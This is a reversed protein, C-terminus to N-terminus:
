DKKDFHPTEFDMLELKETTETKETSDKLPHGQRRERFNSPSEAHSKYEERPYLELQSIDLEKTIPLPRTDSIMFRTKKNPSDANSSPDTILFPGNSQPIEDSSKALADAALRNKRERSLPSQRITRVMAARLMADVEDVPYTYRIRCRTRISEATITDAKPPSVVKLSFTPQRRDAALIAIYCSHMDLHILDDREIGLEKYLMEADQVSMHFAVLQKINAQVTSLLLPNLKQIYELSQCSLFFTAGHKHLEALTGYDTALLMEFADIIIPLRVRNRQSDLKFGQEELTLQILGLITAGILSAIDDGVISKALKLLIIKRETIMQALNLTSAAQGVIRRASTSEFKAVKTILPNIVDRQQAFSLPEYYERWWRHLYDDQVLQLVTHCFKANTLLPSVDLLTYQQKPGDQQDRVVLVKNAEFLTRLSMEFVNEMKAGWSAVWIHALMKLLDSITKDRGRGLTVDLPNLGISATSDALDILVVDEVRHLPVIKLVDDCLDGYPDILVLGGQVMATHALHRMFASKGEASKGAILTHYDLFSAPLHFALRSGDHESYGIPVDSIIQDIVAPPLPLTRTKRETINKLKSTKNSPPLHWLTALMHHSVFHDSQLLGQQWGHNPRGIERSLLLQAAMAPIQKPVFAIGSIAHFQRYSAIIRLLVEERKKEGSSSLSPFFSLLSSMKVEDAAKPAIVYFRIRTRYASNVDVVTKEQPEHKYFRQVVKSTGYLFLGEVALFAVGCWILQAVQEGVLNPFQGWLIFLGMDDWLWVPLWPSALPCLFGLVVINLMALRSIGWRSSLFVKAFPPKDLKETKGVGGSNGLIGTITMKSKISLIGTNGLKRTTMTSSIPALAIQVVARTQDPLKSLLTLLGVLPDREEKSLRASADSAGDKEETILEVASVAEHPDLRFPDDEGQLSQIEIQPYEARLLAEVHDLAAQTTARIIFSSTNAAGAIELAVPHQTDLVLSQITVEMSRILDPSTQPPPIIQLSCPTSPSISIQSHFPAKM